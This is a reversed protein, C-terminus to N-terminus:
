RSSADAEISPSDTSFQGPLCVRGTNTDRLRRERWQTPRCHYMRMFARDFTGVHNYGCMASIEKISLEARELLRSARQLRAATLHTAFGCGTYRALLHALHSSSLRVHSAVDDLSLDSSHYRNAIFRLGTTVLAMQRETRRRPKENTSSTLVTGKHHTGRLAMVTVASPRACRCDCRSSSGDARSAIGHSLMEILTTAAVAERPPIACLVHYVAELMLQPWRECDIAKASIRADRCTSDTSITM